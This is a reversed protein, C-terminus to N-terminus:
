ALKTDYRFNPKAMEPDVIEEEKSEVTTKFPYTLESAEKRSRITINRLSDFRDRAENKNEVIGKALMKDAYRERKADVREKHAAYREQKRQDRAEIRQKKEESADDYGVYKKSLNKEKQQKKFGSALDRTLKNVDTIGEM